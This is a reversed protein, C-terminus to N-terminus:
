VDDDLADILPRLRNIREGLQDTTEWIENLEPLAPDDDDYDEPSGSYENMRILATTILNAVDDPEGGSVAEDDLNELVGMFAPHVSMRKGQALDLVEHRLDDLESQVASAMAARAPDQAADIEDLALESQAQAASYREYAAQGVGTGIGTTAALALAGGTLLARRALRSALGVTHPSCAQAEVVLTNAANTLRQSTLLLQHKRAKNGRDPLQEAIEDLEYAAERMSGAAREAAAQLSTVTEEVKRTM